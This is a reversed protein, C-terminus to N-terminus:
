NLVCMRFPQSIHFFSCIGQQVFWYKNWLKVPYSSVSYFSFCFWLRTQLFYQLGACFTEVSSLVLYLIGFYNTNELIAFFFMKFIKRSAKWYKHSKMDLPDLTKSLKFSFNCFFESHFQVSFPSLAKLFNFFAIVSNAQEAWYLPFPCYCCIWATYVEACQQLFFLWILYPLCSAETSPVVLFKDISSKSTRVLTHACLM